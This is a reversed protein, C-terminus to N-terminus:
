RRPADRRRRRCRGLSLDRLRAGVVLLAGCSAIALFTLEGVDAGLATAAGLALACLAASVKKTMSEVYRDFTSTM